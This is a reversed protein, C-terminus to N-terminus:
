LRTVPKGDVGHEHLRLLNELRELREHLEQLVPVIDDVTVERHETRELTKKEEYLDAM